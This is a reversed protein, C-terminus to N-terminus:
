QKELTEFSSSQRMGKTALPGVGQGAVGKKGFAIRGTKYLAGLALAVVALTFVLGISGGIAGAEASSLSSSSVASSTSGSTASITTNFCMSVTTDYDSTAELRVDACEYGEAGTQANTYAINFTVVEGVTYGLTTFDPAIFCSHGAVISSAEPLLPKFESLLSTASTSYSIQVDNATGSAQFALKGGTMPFLTRDGTEMEFGQCPSISQTAATNGRSEPYVLSLPAAAVDKPVVLAKVSAAVSLIALLSSTSLM